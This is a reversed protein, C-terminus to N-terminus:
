GRQTASHGLMDAEGGPGMKVYEGEVDSPPLRIPRVPGGYGGTLLGAYGAEPGRLALGGSGGVGQRTM